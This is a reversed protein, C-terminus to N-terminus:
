LRSAMVDIPVLSEPMLVDPLVEGYENLSIKIEDEYMVIGNVFTDFVAKLEEQNESDAKQLQDHLYQEVSDLTVANKRQETLSYLRMEIQEIEREIETAQEQLLEATKKGVAFAKVLNKLSSELAKKASTLEKIKADIEDPTEDLLKVVAAAIQSIKEDNLIHIKLASLVANELDHKKINKNDCIGEHKRNRCVYYSYTYEKYRYSYGFYTAGCKGCVAKGSLPYFHQETKRPKSPKERMERLRDNAKLWLMRDVIAPVANEIVLDDYGATKFRLTGIYFDSRILRSVNIPTFFNGLRSKAGNENLYTRIDYTSMGDAYMQYIQRVFDAEAPNEAYKRRKKSGHEEETLMYGFRVRGGTYYGQRAMERMSSKVHDSINESTYQDVSAVINTTLRGSSTDEDITQTVCLLRVGHERFLLRYKSSEYTNRFMRNMKYVIITKVKGAKVDRILAFFAERGAVQTATQAKDIYNEQIELRHKAAFENIETTQYEISYGDDQKTDSYRMYTATTM